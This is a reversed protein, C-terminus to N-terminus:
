ASIIQPLASAPTPFGSRWPRTSRRTDSDHRQRREPTFKVANSLLNLMIQKFKREDGVWEGM